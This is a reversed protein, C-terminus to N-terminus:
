GRARSAAAPGAGLEDVDRVAVRRERLGVAVEQERVAVDEAGADRRSAEIALREGGRELAAVLREGRGRAREHPAIQRGIGGALEQPHERPEFALRPRRHMEADPHGAVLAGREEEHLGRRRAEIEVRLLRVETQDLLGEGGRAVLGARGPATSCREPGATKATSDRSAIRPSTRRREVIAVTITAPM